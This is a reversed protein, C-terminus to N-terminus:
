HSRRRCMQAADHFVVLTIYSYNEIITSSRHRSPESPPAGYEYLFSFSVWVHIKEHNEHSASNSTSAWARRRRRRRRRRAVHHDYELYHPQCLCAAKSLM